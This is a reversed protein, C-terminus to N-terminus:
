DSGDLERLGEMGLMECECKYVEIGGPDVSTVGM